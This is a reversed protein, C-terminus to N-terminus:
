KVSQRNVACLHVRRRALRWLRHDRGSWSTEQVPQRTLGRKKSLKVPQPGGWEPVSQAGHTGHRLPVDCSFSRHQRRWAQRAATVSSRRCVHDLACGAPYKGDEHGRLSKGRVGRHQPTAVLRVPENSCRARPLAPAGWHLMAAGCNCAADHAGCYDRGNRAVQSVFRSGTASAPAVPYSRPWRRTEPM